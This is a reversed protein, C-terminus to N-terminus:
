AHSSKIRLRLLLHRKTSRLLSLDEHRTSNVWLEVEKGFELSKQCTTFFRMYLVGPLLMMVVNRMEVGQFEGSKLEIQKGLRTVVVWLELELGRFDM